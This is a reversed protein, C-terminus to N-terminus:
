TLQKRRWVRIGYVATFITVILFKYWDPTAELATFGDVVYPHAEPDFSMIMPISVLLMVWEDKYGSNNISLTEWEHDLAEGNEIRSTKAKEVAAKGRLKEIEIEQALQRKKTKYELVQGVTQGTLTAIIKDWIM